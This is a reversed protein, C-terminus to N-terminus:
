VALDQLERLARNRADLDGAPARVTRIMKGWVGDRSPPEYKQWLTYFVTTTSLAKAIRWRDDETHLYYDDGKLWNM